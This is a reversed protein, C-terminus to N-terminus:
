EFFDALMDSITKDEFTVSDVIAKMIEEDEETIEEGTYSRYTLNIAQYDHLVFYQIAHVTEAEDHFYFKYFEEEPHDYLEGGEKIFGMDAYAVTIEEGLEAVEEDSLKSLNKVINDRKIVVIERMMDPSLANFYSDSSIMYEVLEEANMGSIALNPDSDDTNRDFTIYDSPFEVTMGVGDIEYATTDACVPVSMSLVLVMGMAAALKKKMTKTM